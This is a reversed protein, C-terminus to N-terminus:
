YVLGEPSDGSGRPRGPIAIAATLLGASLIGAGVSGVFLGNTAQRRAATPGAQYRGAMVLSGAYLSGALAAAGGASAFLPIKPSPGSRDDELPPVTLPVPTPVPMVPLPVPVPVPSPMVPRPVGQVPAQLWPPLDGAGTVLGSWTLRGDPEVVQVIALGSPASQSAVGNVFLLRPSPPMTWFTAPASRAHQYLTQLPGGPPALAAKLPFNPQVSLASRFAEVAFPENGNVFAFTGELRLLAAAHPAHVVEGLCLTAQIAADREARLRADDLDVFALEAAEVHRLVTTTGTPVPCAAHAASLAASLGLGVAGARM